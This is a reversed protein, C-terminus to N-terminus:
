LMPYFSPINGWRHTLNLIIVLWSLIHTFNHRDNLHHWCSLSGFHAQYGVIFRKQFPPWAFSGMCAHCLPSSQIGKCLFLLHVLLVDRYCLCEGAATPMKFILHRQDEVRRLLWKIKNAAACQWQIIAPIRQPMCVKITVIYCDPVLVNRWVAQPARFLVELSARAPLCLLLDFVM